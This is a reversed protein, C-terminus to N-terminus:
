ANKVEMRLQFYLYNNLVKMIVIRLDLFCRASLSMKNREAVAWSVLQLAAPIGHFDAVCIPNASVPVWDRECVSDSDYPRMLLTIIMLM